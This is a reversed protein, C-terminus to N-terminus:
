SPGIMGITGTCFRRLLSDAMQGFDGTTKGIRCRNLLYEDARQGLLGCTPAIIRASRGGLRGPYGGVADRRDGAAMGPGLAHEFPHGDCPHALSACGRMSGIAGRDFDRARRCMDTTFYGRAKGFGLINPSARTRG